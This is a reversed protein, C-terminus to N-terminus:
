PQNLNKGYEDLAQQVNRQQLLDADGKKVKNAVKVIDIDHKKKGM